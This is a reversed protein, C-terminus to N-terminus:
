EKSVQYFHYTNKDDKLKLEKRLAILSQQTAKEPRWYIKKRIFRTVAAGLQITDFKSKSLSTNEKISFGLEEEAM